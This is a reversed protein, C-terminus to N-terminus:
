EEEKKATIRITSHKEWECQEYRGQGRGHVMFNWGTPNIGRVCYNATGETTVLPTITLAPLPIFHGSV